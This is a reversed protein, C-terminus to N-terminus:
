MLATRLDAQRASEFTAGRRLWGLNRGILLEFQISHHTNKMPITELGFGFRTALARIENSDDYTLLFDGSVLSMRSFLDEHDIDSFRYLRAGAVTYPPDVFFVVDPRKRNRTIVDLGNGEIFRLRSKIMVIDLIRRSLTEPYWRSAVGRGNEGAKVLGAGPAMIGGRQVRNRLITQFARVRLSESAIALAAQVNDRTCRFTRIRRALWPGGDTSIITNWVTAVDPDKEVLLVERALEEFAATLGVIGGGAFPEVLLKPTGPLSRLWRRVTPILWTKGGPYRFPSRKPVTAVNVVGTHNERTAMNNQVFIVRFGKGYM